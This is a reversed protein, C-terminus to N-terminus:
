KKSELIGQDYEFTDFVLVSNLRQKNFKCYKISSLSFHMLAILFYNNVYIKNFVYIVFIISNLKM